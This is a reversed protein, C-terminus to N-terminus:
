GGAWPHGVFVAKRVGLVDLTRLTLRVRDELAAAGRPLTPTEGHGAADPAIVLFGLGGLRSLLRLYARRNLGFGHLFVLPVGAGGVSVGVLQDGDLTLVRHTLRVRSTPLSPEPARGSPYGTGPDRIAWATHHRCRGPRATVATVAGRSRGASM